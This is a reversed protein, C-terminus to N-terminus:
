SPSYKSIVYTDNCYVLFMHQDFMKSASIAVRGRGGGGGGCM